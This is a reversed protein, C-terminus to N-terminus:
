RDSRDQDKEQEWDDLIRNILDNFSEDMKGHQKLRKHTDEHIKINKYDPMLGTGVVEPRACWTDQENGASETHQSHM